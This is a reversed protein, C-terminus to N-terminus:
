NKEDKEYEDYSIKKSQFANRLERKLERQAFETDDLM